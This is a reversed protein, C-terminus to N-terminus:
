GYVDQDTIDIRGVMINDAFAKDDDHNGYVNLNKQLDVNIKHRYDANADSEEEELTNRKLEFNPTVDLNQNQQSYQFELNQNQPRKIPAPVNGLKNQPANICAVCTIKQCFKKSKVVNYQISGPSSDIVEKTNKRQISFLGESKAL